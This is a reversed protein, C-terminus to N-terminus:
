AHSDGLASKVSAPIANRPTDKAGPFYRYHREAGETRLYGNQTLNSISVRIRHFEAAQKNSKELVETMTLGPHASILEIVEKSRVSLRHVRKTPKRAPKPAAEKQIVTKGRVGYWDADRQVNGALWWMSREAKRTAIHVCQVEGSSHMSMLCAQVQTVGGFKYLKEVEIPNSASSGSLADLLKGRLAHEAADFVVARPMLNPPIANIRM